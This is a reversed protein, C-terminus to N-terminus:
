RSSESAETYVESFKEFTIEREDLIHKIKVFLYYKNNVMQDFDLFLTPIDHKVMYELYNSLINKYFELQEKENEANWLGGNEKSRSARSKASAELNRIPIIVQKIKKSGVPQRLIFDYGINLLAGRNFGRGDDSQTVILVTIGILSYHQIFKQLQATRDQYKNERFPVVIVANNKEHVPKINQFTRMNMKYRSKCEQVLKKVKSYEIFEFKQYNVNVLQKQQEQEDAMYLPGIISSTKNFVDSLYDFVFDKTFYQKYFARGNEAIQKCQEDHDLCWQMIEELDSLDHKVFICHERDKLFPEFWLTYESVVNLVCFGYKFLSGFRYAASNGEMNFVFKYKLQDHRDVFKKKELKEANTNFEVFPSYKTKKDRKTFETIGADLIKPNKASLETIKLRPNNETSNGCGTSMGRWFFIAKRSEWSPINEKLLYQNSCVFDNKKKGAFSKQTIIEWDDGTPIPIDAHRTTTSQSLIPVYSIGRYPANM